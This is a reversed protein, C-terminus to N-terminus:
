EDVPGGLALLLMTLELKTFAGPGSESEKWAPNPIGVIRDIEERIPAAGNRAAITSATADFPWDDMGDPITLDSM